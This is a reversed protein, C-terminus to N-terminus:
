DRCGRSLVLLRAWVEEMNRGQREGREDRKGRARADKEGKKKKKRLNM